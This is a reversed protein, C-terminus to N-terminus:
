HVLTAERVQFHIKSLFLPKCQTLTVPMAMARNYINAMIKENYILATMKYALVGKKAAPIKAPAGINHKHSPTYTTDPAKAYTM